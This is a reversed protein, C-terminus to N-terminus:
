KELTGVDTYRNFHRHTSQAKTIRNFSERLDKGLLLIDDIRRVTGDELTVPQNYGKTRAGKELTNFQTQWEEDTLGMGSVYKLAEGLHAYNIGGQGDSFDKLLMNRDLYQDALEKVSDNIAENWEASEEELSKLNLSKDLGIASLTESFEATSLQKQLNEKQTALVKLQDLAEQQDAPAAGGNPDAISETTAITENLSAM